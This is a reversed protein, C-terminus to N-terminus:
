VWMWGINYAGFLTPRGPPAAAYITFGTGAVITGAMTQPSDIVHEDATHDASSAVRIATFLVSGSQINTQGTIVATALASGPWAGFNITTNGTNVGTSTGTGGNAVNLIGSMTAVRAAITFILGTTGGSVSTLTNSTANTIATSLSNFQSTLQSLNQVGGKVADVLDTQTAGGQHAPDGSSVSAPQVTPDAM